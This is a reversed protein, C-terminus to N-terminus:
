IHILSLLVICRGPGRDLEAIVGTKAIGSRYSVGIADLQECIFKSTRHEQYGIEPYKHITRRIKILDELHDQM